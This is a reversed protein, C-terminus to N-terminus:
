LVVFGNWLLVINVTNPEVLQIIQFNTLKGNVPCAKIRFWKFGFGFHSLLSLWLLSYQIGNATSQLLFPKIHLNTQTLVNKKHTPRDAKPNTRLRSKTKRQKVTKFFIRWPALHGWKKKTELIFGFSIFVSIPILNYM